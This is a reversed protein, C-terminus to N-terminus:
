KCFYQWKARNRRGSNKEGAKILLVQDNKIDNVSIDLVQNDNVLHANYPLLKALSNVASGASSVSSMEIRHGLLMIVILTSLEWFFDNVPGLRTFINNM